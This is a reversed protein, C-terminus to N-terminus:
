QNQSRFKESPTNGGDVEMINEVLYHNSFINVILISDLIMWNKM